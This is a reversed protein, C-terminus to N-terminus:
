MFNVENKLCGMMKKAMNVEKFKADLINFLYKNQDNLDEGYQSLIQIRSKSHFYHSYFMVVFLVTCNKQMQSLHALFVELNILVDIKVYNSLHPKTMLLKLKRTNEHMSTSNIM